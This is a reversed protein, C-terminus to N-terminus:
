LAAKVVGGDARLAAGNIASAEPSCVFVVLAAVEEPKIFRKLLSSPRVDRFFQKEFEQPTIGQEKALAAVFTVVGESATPGALVSNVTVATGACTEAIGRALAVQATKTVGYHVMEAPIQVASESSIFVIRGRNRQKM